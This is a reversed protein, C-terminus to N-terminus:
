MSPDTCALKVTSAYGCTQINIELVRLLLRCKLHLPTFMYIYNYPQEEIFRSPVKPIDM